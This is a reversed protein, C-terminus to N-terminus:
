RGMLRMILSLVLIPVPITGPRLLTAETWGRFM